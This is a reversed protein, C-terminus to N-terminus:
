RGGGGSLNSERLTAALELTAHVNAQQLMLSMRQADSLSDNPNKKLLRSVRRVEGEALAKHTKPEKKGKVEPNEQEAM